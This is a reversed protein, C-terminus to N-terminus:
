NKCKETGQFTTFIDREKRERERERKRGKERRKEREREREREREGRERERMSGCNPVCSYSHSSRLGIGSSVVAATFQLLCRQYSM